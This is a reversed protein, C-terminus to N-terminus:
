GYFYVSLMVFLFFRCFVVAYSGFKEVCQSDDNYSKCIVIYVVAELTYAVYYLFADRKKTWSGRGLGVERVFPTGGAPPPPHGRLIIM